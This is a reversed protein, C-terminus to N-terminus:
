LGFCSLSCVKEDDTVDMTVKLGDTVGNIVRVNEIVRLSEIHYTSECYEKLMLNCDLGTSRIGLKEVCEVKMLDRTFGKLDRRKYIGRGENKGFQKSKNNNKCFEKFETFLECFNTEPLLECPVLNIKYIFAEYCLIDPVLSRTNDLFGAHEDFRYSVDDVSIEKEQTKEKKLNRVLDPNSDNPLELKSRLGNQETRDSASPKEILRVSESMLSSLLLLFLIIKKYM